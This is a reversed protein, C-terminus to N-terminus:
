RKAGKDQKLRMVTVSTGPFTYDFTSNTFKVSKKTPRIKNPEDLTNEDTANGKLTYAVGSLAGKKGGLSVHIKVPDRHVNVFKVITEGTKEDIGTGCAYQPTKSVSAEQVLNGDIYVKVGGRRVEMKAEYWRNMEVKYEKGPIKEYGDGEILSTYGGWTGVSWLNVAGQRSAFYFRFGENGATKRVKCTFDYECWDNTYVFARTNDIMQTQVIIGDKVSWEGQERNWEPGLGKSLDPKYLIKGDPTKVELDKYENQTQWGGIGIGGMVPDPEPLEADFENPLIRTPVNRAFLLQVWYSPTGYSRDQDFWIMNPCFGTWGERCFLPAYSAMPVFDSNPEIGRAMMAAEAAAALMNGKGAGVACAYEGFYQKPGEHKDFRDLQRMFQAASAYMHPDVIEPQLDDPTKRFTENMDNCVLKIDPHKAMIRKAMIRYHETYLEDWGNENGIELYKLNFPKPHGAKARLSGWKSDAPGNCYEIFDLADQIFPEMDELSVSYKDNKFNPGKGHGNGCNIVYLPEAGLDECMILLEYLGLTNSCMYGWLNMQSVREEIPGISHKWQARGEFTLGEVFCGGPFRVFAPKMAALKEMLDPRLGHGKWTKAPKLSFTDLLMEADSESKMVFRCQRGTETAVFSGSYKKWKEQGGVKVSAPESYAKGSVDTVQFSFSAANKPGRAWFSFNYKEGKKVAIEPSHHEPNRDWRWNAFGWNELADGAKFKAKLNVPNRKNMPLSKELEAEPGAIVWGQVWDGADDFSTNQLMEANIGGDGARNIEEFFIGYLMPSVKISPNNVDIKLTGDAVAALASAVAATAALSKLLKM